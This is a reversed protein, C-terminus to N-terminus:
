AYIRSWRHVMRNYEKSKEYYFNKLSDNKEFVGMTAYFLGYYNPDNFQHAAKQLRDILAKKNLNLQKSLRFLGLTAFFQYTDLHNKGFYNECDVYLEAAQYDLNLQEFTFARILQNIHSHFQDGRNIFVTEAKEAEKISMDIEGREFHSLGRISNIRAQEFPSINTTDIKALLSDLNEPRQFMQAEIRDLM